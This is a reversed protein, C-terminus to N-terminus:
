FDHSHFIDNRNWRMPCFREMCLFMKTRHTGPLQGATQAPDDVAKGDNYGMLDFSGSNFHLSSQGGCVVAAKKGKKALAIGCTLGSLGGGIIITDFKM